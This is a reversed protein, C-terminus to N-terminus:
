NDAVNQVGRKIADIFPLILSSKTKLAVKNIILRASISCITQLVTLGNAKLTKGSQVIDVIVDSLGSIAALEVSGNLKIIDVDVGINDYYESAIKPYKTGVKLKASKVSKDHKGAVCMDCKGILLDAMEYVDAGSELLVDKGCIGVDAVGREVYIAVDSPKVLIFNFREGDTLVLKRTDSKLISCDINARTFIDCTEELLRGKSLAVTIM